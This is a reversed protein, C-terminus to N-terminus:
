SGRVPAATAPKERLWRQKTIMATIGVAILILMFGLHSIDIAMTFGPSFVVDPLNKLVRFVGTVTIAALLGARLYAFATLAFCRRLLGLYIVICYTMVALLVIAGLYHITHTVYFHGLWQFGPIDAIYYRKFIPMQAFGSLGMVFVLFLYLVKLVRKEFNDPQFASSKM